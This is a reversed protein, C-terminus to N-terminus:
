QGTRLRTHESINYIHKAVVQDKSNRVLTRGVSGRQVNAEMKVTNSNLLEIIITSCFGITLSRWKVLNLDYYVGQLIQKM